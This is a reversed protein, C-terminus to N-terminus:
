NIQEIKFYGNVISGDKNVIKIYYDSSKKGKIEKSNEEGAKVVISGVASYNVIRKKYLTIEADAIGENKFYININRNSSYTKFDNGRFGGNSSSIQGEQLVISTLNNNSYKINNTKYTYILSTILILSITSISIFKKM